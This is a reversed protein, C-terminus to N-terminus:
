YNQVSFITIQFMIISMHTYLCAVAPTVDDVSQILCSPIVLSVHLMPDRKNHVPQKSPIKSPEPKKASSARPPLGYYASCQLASPPMKRESAVPDEHEM